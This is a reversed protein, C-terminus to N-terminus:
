NSLYMRGFNNTSFYRKARNMKSTNLPFFAYQQIHNSARVEALVADVPPTRDRLPKVTTTTSTTTPQSPQTLSPQSQSTQVTPQSTTPQIYQSSTGSLIPVVLIDDDKM